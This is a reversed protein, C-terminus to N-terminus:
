AAEDISRRLRALHATGTGCCGRWHAAGRRRLERGTDGDLLLPCDFDFGEAL